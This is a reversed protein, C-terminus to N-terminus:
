WRTDIPERRRSGVIMAVGLLIMLAAVMAPARLDLGTAPLAKAGAEASGDGNRIPSFLPSNSRLGPVGGIPVGGVPPGGSNPGNGNPGSGDPGDFDPGDSDTGDDPGDGGRSGGGSPGPGGGGGSPGGGGPGGGGPGGGGPGGGGGGGPLPATSNTFNNTITATCTVTSAGTKGSDVCQRILIPMGTSQSPPGTATCTMTGGAGGSRNCQFIGQGGPGADGTRNNGPPTAVCTLTSVTGPDQCQRITSDMASGIPFGDLNNTVTVTCTITSAGGLGSDNCQTITTVPITSTTTTGPGCVASGTCNMTTVITALGLPSDPTAPAYTFNNTITVECTITDGGSGGTHSCQDVTGGIIAAAIVPAAEAMVTTTEAPTLTSLDHSRNTSILDPLEAPVSGDAVEGLLDDDSTPADNAVPFEGLDLEKPKADPAPSTSASPDSAGAPSAEPAPTVPEATAAPAPPAKPAHKAPSAKKAPQAPNARRVQTRLRLNIERSVDNRSRAFSPGDNSDSSSGRDNGGRDRDGNGNRAMATTTATIPALSFVTLVFGILVKRM